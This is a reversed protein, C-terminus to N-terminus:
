GPAPLLEVEAFVPLHDSVAGGIVRCALFRFRPGAMIRDIRVWPAGKTTPFTYGFGFGVDAFADRYGHFVRTLTRSQGPLNTDGAIIVPYPSRAADAVVAQLQAGRLAASSMVDDTAPRLIRGSMIEYRLGEGRLTGFSDRPSIPHVNYLHIPGGPTAIRYREFHPTRPLGRHIVHPPDFREEIPFRSALVFQGNKDVNYGPLGARWAGTDEHGSEQIVILDADAERIRAMVNDIGARAFEINFTLIRIPRGGPIAAREFSLHLGMLPFVILALAVVQTSLWRWSRDIMLAATLFPLPIAWGLRPLYLATITVWWDDGVLRFAAIVAILALPYGVAAVRLGWRWVVVLRAYAM